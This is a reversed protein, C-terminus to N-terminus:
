LKKINKDEQTESFELFAQFNILRIIKTKIFTLHNKHNIIEERIKEKILKM